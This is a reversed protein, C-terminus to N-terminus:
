NNCPYTFINVTNLILGFISKAFSNHLWVDYSNHKRDKNKNGSLSLRYFEGSRLTSDGDNSHFIQQGVADHAEKSLFKEFEAPPPFRFPRLVHLSKEETSLYVKFIWSTDFM